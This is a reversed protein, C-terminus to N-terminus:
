NEKKMTISEETLIAAVSELQKKIKKYEQNDIKVTYSIKQDFDKKIVEATKLLFHVEKENTYPFSISVLTGEILKKLSAKKICERAGKGYARLLGGAGLKIGGFYRIVVCLVFDLKSGKIQNLIPLGATGSPEGDDYCKEYTGIKYAYCVHTADRYTEKMELLKEEVEEKTTVYFLKTLFRSKKIDIENTILDDITYM